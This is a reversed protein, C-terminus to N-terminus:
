ERGGKEEWETELGGVGLVLTQGASVCMMVAMVLVSLRPKPDARKGAGGWDM